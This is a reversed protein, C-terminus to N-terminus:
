EDEELEALMVGRWEAANLLLGAGPGYKRVDWAELYATVSDNATNGCRRSFDPVRMWAGPDGTAYALMVRTEVEVREAAAAIPRKM